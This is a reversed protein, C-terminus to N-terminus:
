NNELIIILREINDFDEEYGMEVKRKFKGVCLICFVRNFVKDYIVSYKSYEYCINNRNFILKM